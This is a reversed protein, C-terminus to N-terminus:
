PVEGRIVTQEDITPPTITKKEILKIDKWKGSRFRIYFILALACIYFSMITWVTFIGAKFLFVAMSVPIILLTWSAIFITRGIFLTDGAGRLAGSYIVSMTDLISYVAVFRMLYIAISKVSEYNPENPTKFLDCFPEPTIFIILSISWMYFSCLELARRVARESMKIEGSGIGQGM